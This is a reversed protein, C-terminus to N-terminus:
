FRITFHQKERFEKRFLVIGIFFLDISCRVSDHDRITKWADEMESSWHIDDFVLMTDNNIKKLLLDFYSLTPDRRHNGDIFVLDVSPMRDLQVPLMDDFNGRVLEINTIALQKFNAEAIAAVALAGEMTVLKGEPNGLALYSSTIGLSTGLEIMNVPQYTKAIRYMLQGYKRPKVANNVISSVKRVDGAEVASGAGLDSVTISVDDQKLAGRLKEVKSYSPYITKDNLVNRIFHFIFPSHSGHGKGNSASFFYRFYKLGLQFPNYM